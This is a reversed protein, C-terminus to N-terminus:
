RNELGARNSSGSRVRLDAATHAYRRKGLPAPNTFEYCYSFPQGTDLNRGARKERKSISLHMPDFRRPVRLRSAPQVLNSGTQFQVSQPVRRLPAPCKRHEAAASQLKDSAVHIARRSTDRRSPSAGHKVSDTCCQVLHMKRVVGYNGAIGARTRRLEVRRSRVSRQTRASRAFRSKRKETSSNHGRCKRRVASRHRFLNFTTKRSSTVGHPM